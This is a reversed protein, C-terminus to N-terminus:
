RPWRSASSTASMPCPVARQCFAGVPLLAGCGRFASWDVEDGSDPDAHLLYLKTRGELAIKLAHAFALQSSATFDTANLVSRIPAIDTGDSM